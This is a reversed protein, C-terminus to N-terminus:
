AAQSQTKLKRLSTLRELNYTLVYWKTQIDVKEMGRVVFQYLGHNRCWANPLECKCRQKYLEKAEDTGMRERWEGMPPSDGKLAAFPDIGKKLKNEEAKVPAYFTIKMSAAAEVNARTGFAGDMFATHPTKGYAAQMQELMPAAENSDSGINTVFVGIIVLSNLLTAFQVNYAPRTGGDGMKMKRAEPDTTSGRAFRGDGKKRKEKTERVKEAEEQAEEIRQLREEAARQRAAKQATSLNPDEAAQQQQQVEKEAEEFLEELREQSRFSSTGAHARTRMGDQGYPEDFSALGEDVLTLVVGAIQNDLWDGHAMRFSSLMHYNVSLGGCLWRFPADRPCLRALKRAETVEEVAAYIWLAALLSPPTADRGPGGEVAKIGALLPSTDLDNEVLRWVERVRHDLSIMEDLTQGSPLSRDIARLRPKPQATQNGTNEAASVNVNPICPQSM